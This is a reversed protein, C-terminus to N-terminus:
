AAGGDPQGGYGLLRTMDEEDMEDLRQQVEEPTVWPLKELALRTGIVPLATMVMNTMETQNAIKQWKFKPIEWVGFIKYYLTSIATSIHNEFDACKDDQAQYAANIETATKNGASLDQANFLMADRYIDKELIELITRRAEVPVNVEHPTVDDANDVAAAHVTRMRDLFQAIDMDDMGGSNKLIWFLHSNDDIDNALGNKEFDYCDIAERVFVLESQHTDNAYMPVIPLTGYGRGSMTEVGHAATSTETIIYPKTEEQQELGGGTERYATYGDETYLVANLKRVSASTYSYWYRIGAMLEGSFEDFLPVFGPRTPTDVLGFVEVHDLNFFLFSVSDVMAIKAATAAQVDIDAGLKQKAEDTSFTM